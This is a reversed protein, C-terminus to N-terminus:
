TASIISADLMYGESLVYVTHKDKQKAHFFDIYVYVSCPVKETNQIKNTKMFIICSFLVM